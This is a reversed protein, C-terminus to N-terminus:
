LVKVNGGPSELFFCFPYLCCYATQPHAESSALPTALAPHRKPVQGRMRREMAQHTCESETLTVPHPFCISREQRWSFQTSSKRLYFFSNPTPLTCLKRRPNWLLERPGNLGRKERSPLYLRQYDYIDLEPTAHGYLSHGMPHDIHTM